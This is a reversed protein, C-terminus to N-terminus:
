GKEKNKLVDQHQGDTCRCEQLPQGHQVCNETECVKAVESVGGCEPCVYHMM